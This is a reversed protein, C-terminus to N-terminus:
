TKPLAESRRTIEEFVRHTAQNFDEKPQHKPKGKPAKKATKKAM